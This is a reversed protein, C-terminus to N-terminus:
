KPTNLLKIALPCGHTIVRHERVLEPWQEIIQMLLPRIRRYEALEEDSPPPEVKKCRKQEGQPFPVVNATSENAQQSQTERLQEM